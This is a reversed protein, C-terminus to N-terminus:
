QQRSPLLRKAAQAGEEKKTVKCAECERVCTADSSDRQGKVVVIVVAIGIDDSAAVIVDEAAVVFKEGSTTVFKIPSAIGLRLTRTDARSRRPNSISSSKHDKKM